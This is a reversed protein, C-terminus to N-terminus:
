LVSRGAKILAVLYEPNPKEGFRVVLGDPWILECASPNNTALALGPLDLHVFHGSSEAPKPQDSQQRRFKSLYLQFTSYAIKHKLCFERQTIGPQNLYERVLAYRAETRSKTSQMTPM